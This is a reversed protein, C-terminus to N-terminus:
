ADGATLAARRQRSFEVPNESAFVDEIQELSLGKTEPLFLYIMVTEFIDWIAFILYVAYFDAGLMSYTDLQYCEGKWGLKALAVPLRYL